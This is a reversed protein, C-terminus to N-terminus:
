EDSKMEWVVLRGLEESVGAFYQESVAVSEFREPLEYSYLYDGNELDYVDMFGQHWTRNKEDRQLVYIQITNSVVQPNISIQQRTTIDVTNIRAVDNAYYPDIKPLEPDEIAKRAFLLEGDPSYKIIQNTFYQSQIVDNNPSVAYFGALVISWLPPDDVLAQVMGIYEDSLTYKRMQMGFRPEFWYEDNGVPIVKEFLESFGMVKWDEQDKTNFITIRANRGDLVWLNGSLDLLIDIIILFEGPGRGEGKGFVARQNGDSDFQKVVRENNDAVYIFGDQGYRMHSSSIFDDSVRFKEFQIDRWIRESRDQPIPDYLYASHLDTVSVSRTLTFFLILTFLGLFILGIYVKRKM